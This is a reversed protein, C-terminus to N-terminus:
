IRRFYGQVGGYQCPPWLSPCAFNSSKETISDLVSKYSLNFTNEEVDAFVPVAVFSIIANATAVFTLPSTIVEQGPKIGIASIALSLASTGNNVACAFRAGVFEAFESEFIATEPGSAIMGSEIVRSVSDIEEQGLQPKAINIRM